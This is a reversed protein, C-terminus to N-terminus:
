KVCRLMRKNKRWENLEDIQNLLDKCVFRLYMASGSKKPHINQHFYYYFLTNKGMKELLNALRLAIKDYEDIDVLNSVIHNLIQKIDRFQEPYKTIARDSALICAHWQNELFKDPSLVIESNEMDRFM